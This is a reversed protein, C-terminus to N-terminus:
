ATGFVEKLLSRGVPHQRIWHAHAPDRLVMALMGCRQQFAVHLLGAARDYEGLAALPSAYLTAEGVSTSSCVLAADIVDMADARHGVRALVSALITWAFTPAEVGQTLRWAQGVMSENPAVLALMALSFATAALEGPHEAATAQAEQLAEESSGAQLLARALTMRVRARHPALLKAAQLQDVALEAQDVYLLHRAYALLTDAHGPEQDMAREFAIGAEEFRWALDLLSARAAFKGSVPIGDPISSLAALGEEVSAATQLLGWGVGVALGEALGVRAAWFDPVHDILRRLRAVAMGVASPTAQQLLSRCFSYTEVAQSSYLDVWAPQSQLVSRESKALVLRYGVGYVAEIQHGARQLQNRLRSICRALNEDSMEAGRWAASAFEDKSVIAPQNSSLVALVARERPPVILLVGNLYPFGADDFSLSSGQQDKREIAASRRESTM